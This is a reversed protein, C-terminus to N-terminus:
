LPRGSSDTEEVEIEVVKDGWMGRERAIAIISSRVAARFGLLDSIKAPKQSLKDSKNSLASTEYLTFMVGQLDSAFTPTKKGECLVYVRGVDDDNRSGIACGLEFMVNLNEGSIDLLLIDADRIRNIISGMVTAGHRARIRRIRITLPREGKHKVALKEVEGTISKLAERIMKWSKCNLGNGNLWNYGVAIDIVPKCCKADDSM